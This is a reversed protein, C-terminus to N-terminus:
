LRARLASPVTQLQPRFSLPWSPSPVVVSWCVGILALTVRAVPMAAAEDWLRASLPSPVTTAHPRLLLPCSPSLLTVSLGVGTLTFPGPPTPASVPTVAIAAPLDQYLRASSPS